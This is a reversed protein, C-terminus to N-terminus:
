HLSPHVDSKRFRQAKQVTEAVISLPFWRRFGRVLSPIGEIEVSRDRLADSLTIRGVWVQFFASLDAKVLVDSGFGPYKLCVSVDDPKLVLWYNGKKPPRFQFEMVIQQKPLRESYIRNRMWWMLLLPDLEGSEPEGFAWKAGWQMLDNLLEKLEIGAKTLQYSTRQRNPTVKQELVGVQQLRQLRESLLARSIGPLGRELENFHQVGSLLERIILFTWRDGLIEAARATPCYQGYKNM